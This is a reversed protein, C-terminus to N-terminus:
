EFRARGGSHEYMLSSLLAISQFYNHKTFWGIFSRRQGCWPHFVL